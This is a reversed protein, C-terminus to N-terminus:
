VPYGVRIVKQQIHIRKQIYLIPSLSDGYTANVHTAIASVPGVSMRSHWWVGVRFPGALRAWCGLAVTVPKVNSADMDEAHGERGM